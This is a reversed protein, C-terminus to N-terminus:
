LLYGNKRGKPQEWNELLLATGIETVEEPQMFKDLYISTIIM